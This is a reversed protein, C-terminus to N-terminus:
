PFLLEQLGDIAAYYSADLTFVVNVPAGIPLKMPKLDVPHMGAPFATVNIKTLAPNMTTAPRGCRRRKEAGIRSAALQELQDKISQHVLAQNSPCDSGCQGSPQGCRQCFLAIRQSM